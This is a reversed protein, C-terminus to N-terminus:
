AGGSTKASGWALTLLVWNPRMVACALWGRWPWIASRRSKQTWTHFAEMRDKKLPIPRRGTWESLRQKRRGGEGALSTDPSTRSHNFRATEFVTSGKRTGHTRIGGEGGAAPSEPSHSALLRVLRNEALLQPVCDWDWLLQGCQLKVHLSHKTHIFAPTSISQRGGGGFSCSYSPSHCSLSDSLKRIYVLQIYQYEHEVLERAKFPIHAIHAVDGGMLNGRCFDLLYHTQTM